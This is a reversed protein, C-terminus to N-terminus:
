PYQTLNQESSLRQRIEYIVSNQQSLMVIHLVFMFFSLYAGVLVIFDGRLLGFFVHVSVDGGDPLFVYTLVYTINAYRNYAKMKKVMGFPLATYKWAKINFIVMVTMHIVPLGLLLMFMRIWGFNLFYALAAFLVSLVSLLVTERSAPRDPLDYLHPVPISETPETPEETQQRNTPDYPNEHNQSIERQKKAEKINNWIVILACFLLAAATLVVEIIVSNDIEM